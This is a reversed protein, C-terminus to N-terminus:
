TQDTSFNQAIKRLHGNWTDLEADAAAVVFRGEPDWAKLALCQDITHLYIEALKAVRLHVGASKDGVFIWQGDRRVITPMM